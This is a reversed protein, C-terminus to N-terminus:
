RPLPVDFQMLDEAVVSDPHIKKAQELLVTADSVRQSIHTMLLKKVGAREALMASESATSHGFLRAETTYEDSFTTDFALIDVGKFFTVLRRAPRTDGSYGFSRGRRPPGMVMEPTVKNGRVEVARGNQLKRFMPGPSIGLAVARDPFFKGPRRGEDLRYGYCEGPHETRIARVRYGTGRHVLGDKAHVFEVPFTLKTGLIRFVEVILKKLRDPGVIKIPSRRDHMSMSMLLGFLGLTHDGHIHSIFIVDPEFRSLRATTMQRQTGEGCDFLLLEGERELAISSVGRSRTPLAASSGLVTVRFM